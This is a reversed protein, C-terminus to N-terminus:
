SQKNRAFEFQLEHVSFNRGDDLWVHCPKWGAQRALSQFREVSYKYSNETHITEAPNFHVRQGLVEVTQYSLSVLHMEIRASSADYVARHEFRSIDFDASLERNIRELINLNFKATIGRDDDYARVLRNADKELDAGIILSTGVGLINGFHRLLKVAATPDFNGITSGPFFGLKSHATLSVPLALKECFSGILPIVELTPFRLGLRRKASELATSSVDIPVYARPQEMAGLLLETKRSSGSGFEILVASKGASRAMELSHEQLIATEARTPYYEELETIQEFLESGRADYFYQCPLQKCPRLLGDLVDRAFGSAV